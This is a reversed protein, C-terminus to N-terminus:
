RSFRYVFMGEETGVLLKGAYLRQFQVGPMFNFIQIWKPKKFCFVSFGSHQVYSELSKQFLWLKTNSTVDNEDSFYTVYSFGIFFNASIKYM